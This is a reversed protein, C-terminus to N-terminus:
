PGAELGVVVGDLEIFTWRRWVSRRLPTCHPLAGARDSGSGELVERGEDLIVIDVARVQGVM